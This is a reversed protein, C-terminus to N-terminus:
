TSKVSLNILMESRYIEFRQLPTASRSIASTNGTEARSRQSKGRTSCMTVTM